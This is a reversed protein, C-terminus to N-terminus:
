LSLSTADLWPLLYLVPNVSHTNTRLKSLKATDNRDPDDIIKLLNSLLLVMYCIILGM